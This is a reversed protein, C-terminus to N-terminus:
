KQYDAEKITKAVGIPILDTYKEHNRIRERVLTSSINATKIDMMKMRPFLKIKIGGRPFVFIDFNEELWKGGWTDITAISDAGYVLVFDVKPYKAQLRRMTLSKDPEPFTTDLDLREIRVTINRSDVSNILAKLYKLRRSKAIGTKKKNNEGSPFLWVECNGVKDAERILSNLIKQHDITPPNFAGGYLLVKM